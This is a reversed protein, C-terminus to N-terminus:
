KVDELVDGNSADICVRRKGTNMMWVFRNFPDGKVAVGHARQHQEANRYITNEPKALGLKAAIAKAGAESLPYTPTATPAPTPATTPAAPAASTTAAVAPADSAGPTTPAVAVTTSCAALLAVAAAAAAYRKSFM